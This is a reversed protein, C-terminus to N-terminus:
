LYPDLILPFFYDRGCCLSARIPVQCSHSPGPISREGMDINLEISLVVMLSGTSFLRFCNVRIKGTLWDVVLVFWTAPLSLGNYFM